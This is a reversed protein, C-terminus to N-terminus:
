ERVVRGLSSVVLGAEAEGRSFRLTQSAVRGLGLPDFTIETESRDRSLTLTVRYEEMLAVHGVVEGGAFLTTSATVSNLQLTARGLAVAEFRAQNFLGAVEERAALVAMRDLQRHAVPLLNALSFGMLLLVTALELVTFGPPGHQSPSSRRM